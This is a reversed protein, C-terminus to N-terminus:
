KQTDGLYWGTTFVIFLVYYHFLDIFNELISILKLYFFLVSNSKASKLRNKRFQVKGLNKSQWFFKLSNNIM